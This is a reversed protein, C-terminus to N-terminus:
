VCRENMAAFDKMDRIFVMTKVVKDMSTGAEELIAKINDLCTATALKIDDNVLKGSQDIPLQGSTYLLNGVVMGQSYPGIAAPAKSTSIVKREM